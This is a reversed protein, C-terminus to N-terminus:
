PKARTSPEAEVARAALTARDFLIGHGPRHPPTFHGNEIRIPEALAGPDTLSGGDINELIHRHPLCCLLQGSLEMM